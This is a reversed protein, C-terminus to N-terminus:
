LWLQIQTNHFCNNQARDIKVKNGLTWAASNKDNSNMGILIALKALQRVTSM